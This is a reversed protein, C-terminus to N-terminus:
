RQPHPSRCRHATSRHRRRTSRGGPTRQLRSSKMSTKWRRTPVTPSTTWAPVARDDNGGTGPDNGGTGQEDEDTADAAGVGGEVVVDNEGGCGVLLVALSAGAVLLQHGRPPTPRPGVTALATRTSRTM